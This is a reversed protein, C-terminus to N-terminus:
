FILGALIEYFYITFINNLALFSLTIPSNLFSLSLILAWDKLNLLKTKKSFDERILHKQGIWFQILGLCM